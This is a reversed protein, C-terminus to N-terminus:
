KIGLCIRSGKSFTVLYHELPKGSPARPDGLWREPVFAYSDPFITEDHTVDVISASVITRPPITWDGYELPRDFVRRLRSTVGYSLRISELICARLYPLPELETLEPITAADSRIASALETHLREYIHPTNAIHFTAVTLAFATTEVGAGVITQAEDAM